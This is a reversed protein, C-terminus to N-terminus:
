KRNPIQMVTERNDCGSFVFTDLDMSRNAFPTLGEYKQGQGPRVYAVTIHPIYNPHTDTHEFSDSIIKNFKVLEPSIVSIKVVDHGDNRFLSIPGLTIPIPQLDKLYDRVKTFDVIHLGYKVTVHIHEERGDSALDSDPINDKAWQRIERTPGDPLNAMVCSYSYALRDLFAHVVRHAIM